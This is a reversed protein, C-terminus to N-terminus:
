RELIRFAKLKRNQWMNIYSKIVGASPVAQFIHKNFYISAHSYAKGFEFCIIDGNKYPKKVEEVKLQKKIGNALLENRNHLHWDRAYNQVKFPGFDLEELVGIVFHICDCGLGKVGCCHRFPTRLWSNLVKGLQEQRDKDEFYYKM